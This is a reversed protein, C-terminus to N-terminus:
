QCWHQERGSRADSSWRIHHLCGHSASRKHGRTSRGCACKISNRLLGAAASVVVEMSRSRTFSSPIPPLGETFVREAPGALRRETPM